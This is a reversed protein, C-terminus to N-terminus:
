EVPSRRRHKRPQGTTGIVDGDAIVLRRKGLLRSLWQNIEINPLQWFAGPPLKKYDALAQVQSADPSTARSQRKLRVQEVKLAEMRAALTDMNEKFQEMFVAPVTSREQMLEKAQQNVSAIEREISALRQPTDDPEVDTFLLSWDSTAALTRLLDDTFRILKKENVLRTNPCDNELSQFMRSRCRMGIYNGADRYSSACHCYDCVVLSTFKRRPMPKGRGSENFRRRMEAKVREATEGEYMPPHTGYHITVHEPAPEDPDFIWFGRGRGTDANNFGQATNGYLTPHVLWQHITSFPYPKGDARFHGREALLNPMSRFSYGALLFEAIDAFLRRADENVVAHETDGKGVTIHSPILGHSTTPLGRKARKASGFKHRRVLEDIEASASYGAMSVFMRYNGKHIDGDRLTFVNAGTDITRAVVEAFISQERGFRDGSSVAFVDFDRRNWHEFMRMPADIGMEAAADAFERYTYFVRSFGPVIIIDVIDWGRQAGVEHLREDQEPLSQKLAAAQVGTSVALMLIARLPKM